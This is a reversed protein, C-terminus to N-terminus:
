KEVVFSTGGIDIIDGVEIRIAGKVRLGNVRTGNTTDLDELLISQRHVRLRAHFASAFPDELRLDNGPARGMHIDGAIPIVASVSLASEEAGRKQWVKNESQLLRLALMSRHPAASRPTVPAPAAQPAAATPASSRALVAALRFMFLYLLALLGLRGFLYLKEFM